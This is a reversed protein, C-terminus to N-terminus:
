SIAIIGDRDLGTLAEYDSPKRSVIYSYCKAQPGIMARFQSENLFAEQRHREAQAKFPM